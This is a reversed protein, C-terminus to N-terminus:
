LSEKYNTSVVTARNFAIEMEFDVYHLRVGEEMCPKLLFWAYSQHCNNKNYIFKVLSV